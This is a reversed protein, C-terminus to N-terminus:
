LFTTAVRKPIKSTKIMKELHLFINGQLAPAICPTLKHVLSAATGSVTCEALLRAVLHGAHQAASTDERHKPSSGLAPFHPHRPRDAPRQRIGGRGVKESTKPSLEPLGLVPRPQFSEFLASYLPQTAALHGVNGNGPASLLWSM